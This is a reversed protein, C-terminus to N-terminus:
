PKMYPTLLTSQQTSRARPLCGCVAGRGYHFFDPDVKFSTTLQLSPHLQSAMWDIFDWASKTIPTALALHPTEGGRQPGQHNPLDNSTTKARTSHGTGLDTRSPLHRAPKGTVLWVQQRSPVPGWVATLVTGVTYQVPM